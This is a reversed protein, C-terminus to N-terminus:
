PGIAQGGKTPGGIALKEIEGIGTLSNGVSCTLPLSREKLNIRRGSL